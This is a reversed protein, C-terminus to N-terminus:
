SDAIYTTFTNNCCRSKGSFIFMEDFSQSHTFLADFRHDKSLLHVSLSFVPISINLALDKVKSIQPNPHGTHPQGCGLCSDIISSSDNKETLRKIRGFEETDPFM